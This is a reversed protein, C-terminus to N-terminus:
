LKLGGNVFVFVFSLGFSVGVLLAMGCDLYRRQDRRKRPYNSNALAKKLQLFMSAVVFGSGTKERVVRKSLDLSWFGAIGLQMDETVVKFFLFIGLGLTMKAIQSGLKSPFIIQILNVASAASYLSFWFYWDPDNLQVSASAAFLSAMLLSCSSFIQSQTIPSAM